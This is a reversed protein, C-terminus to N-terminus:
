SSWPEAPPFWRLSAAVLGLVAVGLAAIPLGAGALGAVVATLGCLLLAMAGAPSRRLALWAVPLQLAVVAALAARLAVTRDDRGVVEVIELGALVVVAVVGGVLAVPPRQPGYGNVVVASEPPHAWTPGTM